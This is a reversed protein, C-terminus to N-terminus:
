LPQADSSEQLHAGPSVLFASEAQPPGMTIVTVKGGVKEKLRVAEEIAYEDFPNIIAEVGERKLTGREPDIQVNTTGPVQKICVLIHM